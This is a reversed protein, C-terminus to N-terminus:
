DELAPFDLLTGGSRNCAALRAMQSAWCARTAAKQCRIRDAAFQRNCAPYKSWEDDECRGSAPSGSTDQPKPQPRDGVGGAGGPVLPGGAAGGQGDESPLWCAGEDYNCANMLCILLALIYAALWTPRM